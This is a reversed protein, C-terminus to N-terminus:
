VKCTQHMIASSPCSRLAGNILNLDALLTVFVLLILCCSVVLVFINDGVGIATLVPCVCVLLTFTNLVVFSSFLLLRSEVVPPFVARESFSLLFPIILRM